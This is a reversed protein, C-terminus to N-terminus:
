QQAGPQRIVREVGPVTTRTPLDDTTPPGDNFLDLVQQGLRLRWHPHVEHLTVAKGTITSNTLIEQGDADVKYIAPLDTAPGFQLTTTAGDDWAHLPALVLDGSMSYGEWHVAPRKMALIEEKAQAEAQLALQHVQTEPYQIELRYLAQADQNDKFRLRFAYSRKDTVLILNTDAQEARPKLFVHNETMGFEYAEADGFAHKVYHEGPELVIHTAIGIVTDVQIVDTPNYTSYRVRNDAASREPLNLSNAPLSFAALLLGIWLNRSLKM